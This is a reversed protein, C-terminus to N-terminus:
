SHEPREETGGEVGKGIATALFDSAIRDSSSASNDLLACSYLTDWSSLDSNQSTVTDTMRLLFTHIYM